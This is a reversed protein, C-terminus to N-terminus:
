WKSLGGSRPGKMRGNPGGNHGSEPKMMRERTNRYVPKQPKIRPAPQQVPRFRRYHKPPKPTFLPKFIRQLLSPKQIRQYSTVRNAITLAGIVAAVSALLSGDSNFVSKTTGSTLDAYVQNKDLISIEVGYESFMQAICRAEEETLGQAIEVPANNLFSQAETSSYGFVDELLDKVTEKTCSGSSVLVLRYEGTTVAPITTATKQVAQSCYPCFNMKENLENGCNPCYM